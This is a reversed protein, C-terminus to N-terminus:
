DNDTNANSRSRSFPPRVDIGHASVDTSQAPRIPVGGVNLPSNSHRLGTALSTDPKPKLPGKNNNDRKPRGTGDDDEGDEDEEPPEEHKTNSFDVPTRTDKEGDFQLTDASAPLLLFPFPLDTLTAYTSLLYRSM